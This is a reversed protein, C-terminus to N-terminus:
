WLYFSVLFDEVLFFWFVSFQRSKMPPAGNLNYFGNAEISRCTKLIQDEKVGYFQLKMLAIIADNQRASFLNAMQIEMIADNLQKNKDDVKESIDIGNM